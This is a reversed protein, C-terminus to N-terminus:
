CDYKRKKIESGLKYIENYISEDDLRFDASLDIFIPSSTSINEGSKETLWDKPYSEEGLGLPIIYSPLKELIRGTFIKPSFPFSHKSYGFSYKTVFIRDGILLNPEMSSSPIYFPQFFFSRIFVAIVLAYILTKTNEKFFNKNFIM